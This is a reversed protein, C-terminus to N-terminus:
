LELGIRLVWGELRRAVLDDVERTREEMTEGFFLLVATMEDWAVCLFGRVSLKMQGIQKSSEGSRIGREKSQSWRKQLLQQDAYRVEFIESSPSSEMRQIASVQASTAGSVKTWDTREEELSGVAAVVSSLNLFSVTLCKTDELGWSM